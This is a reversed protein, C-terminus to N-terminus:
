GTLATADKGAWRRQWNKVEITKLVDRTALQEFIPAIDVHWRLFHNRRVYSALSEDPQIQLPM